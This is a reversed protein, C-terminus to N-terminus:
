ALFPEERQATDPGKAAGAEELSQVEEASYGAETLIEATHEGLAPAPRHLDAPTRSLKIPFGLQKVEGFEPQEYSIVM